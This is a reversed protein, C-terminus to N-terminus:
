SVVAGRSPVTDIIPLTFQFTEGPGDNADAWLRGGHSEVITRAISLGLGMGDPKTTHLANFILPRDEPAIGVGTDRVSVLLTGADQRAVQLTLVRPWATVAMMAQLGNVGLNLLVQQLQVEDGAVDPLGEAVDVVLSAGSARAEIELSRSADAVLNRINLPGKPAERQRFLHRIRSVIDSARRADADIERLAAEVEQLDPADAGLFRVIARANTAIATLPQHIEHAISATLESMTARRTLADRDTVHATSRRRDAVRRELTVQPGAPPTVQAPRGLAFTAQNAAVRLVVSETRTPFDRRRCAAVMRGSQGDLGLPLTALSVHGNGIPNQIRTAHGAAADLALRVRPLRNLDDKGGSTRLAEFPSGGVGEGVSAYAFDLGVTTVIGDLLTALLRSPDDRSWLAPLALVAILDNLCAQLERVDTPQESVTNM